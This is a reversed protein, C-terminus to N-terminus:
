AAGGLGLASTITALRDRLTQNEKALADREDRATALADRLAAESQRVRVKRVAGEALDKADALLLAELTGNAQEATPPTYTGALLMGTVNVVVQDLPAVGYIVRKRGCRHIPLPGDQRVAGGTAYVRETAPYDTFTTTM